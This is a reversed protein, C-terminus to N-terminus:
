SLGGLALLLAVGLALPIPNMKPEPTNVAGGRPNPKPQPTGGKGMPEEPLDLINPNTAGGRQGRVEQLWFTADQNYRLRATDPLTLTGQPSAYPSTGVGCLCDKPDPGSLVNAPQPPYIFTTYPKTAREAM